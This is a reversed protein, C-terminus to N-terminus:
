DVIGGWGKPNVVYSKINELIKKNNEQCELDKKFQVMTKEHPQHFAMITEFSEGLWKINLGALCARKYLDYDESGWGVYKENYGRLRAWEDKHLCQCAGPTTQKKIRGIKCEDINNYPNKENKYVFNVFEKKWYMVRSEVMTKPSLWKSLEGVFQRGFCIDVDTTMIYDTTCVRIAVNNLFTKHWEEGLKHQMIKIPVPGAHKEIHCKLEDFNKSGGDILLVNFHIYDQWQLSRLFLQTAPNNLDLRDRNPAVITLSM